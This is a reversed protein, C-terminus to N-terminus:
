AGVHSLVRGLDVQGRAQPYKAELSKILATAYDRPFDPDPKEKFAKHRTARLINKVLVDELPQRLNRAQRYVSTSVADVEDPALFYDRPNGRSTFAFRYERSLEKPPIGPAAQYFHQLEHYIVTVIEPKLVALVQLSLETPIKVEGIIRIFPNERITKPGSFSGGGTAWIKKAGRKVVFNLRLEFRGKIGPLRWYPPVQPLLLKLNFNDGGAFRQENFSFKSEINWHSQLNTRLEEMAQSLMKHETDQFHPGKKRRLEVLEPDKAIVAKVFAMFWGLIDNAARKLSPSLRESLADEILVLDKAILEQITM